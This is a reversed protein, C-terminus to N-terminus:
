PYFEQTALIIAAIAAYIQVWQGYFQFCFLYCFQVFGM